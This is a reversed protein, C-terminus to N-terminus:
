LCNAIFMAMEVTIEANLESVSEGASAANSSFPWSSGFSQSVRPMSRTDAAEELAEVLHEM